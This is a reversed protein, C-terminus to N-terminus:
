NKKNQEWMTKCFEAEIEAYMRPMLAYLLIPKLHPTPWSTQDEPIFILRVLWFIQKWSNQQFKARNEVFKEPM